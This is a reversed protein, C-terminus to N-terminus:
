AGHPVQKSEADAPAEGTLAIHRPLALSAV